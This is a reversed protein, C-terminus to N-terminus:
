GGFVHGGNSPDYIGSKIDDNELDAREQAYAEDLHTRCMPATFKTTEGLIAEYECEHCPVWWVMDVSVMYIDHTMIDADLVEIDSAHIDYGSAIRDVAMEVVLARNGRAVPEDALTRKIAYRAADDMDVYTTTENM